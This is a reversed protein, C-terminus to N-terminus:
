TTKTEASPKGVSTCITSRFYFQDLPLLLGDRPTRCPRDSLDSGMSFNGVRGSEPTCIPKQLDPVREEAPEPCPRVISSPPEAVTSVPVRFHCREEM